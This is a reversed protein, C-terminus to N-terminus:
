RTGTTEITKPPELSLAKLGLGRATRNFAAVDKEVLAAFDNKAVDLDKEIAELVTISSDTPRYDAGGAVDGAGTGVVGNLWVLNM